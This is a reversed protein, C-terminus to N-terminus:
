CFETVVALQGYRSLPRFRLLAAIFGWTLVAAFGADALELELDEGIDM